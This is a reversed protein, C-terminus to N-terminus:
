LSCVCVCVYTFYLMYNYVYVYTCECVCVCVCVYLRVHELGGSALWGRFCCLQSVTNYLCDCVKM